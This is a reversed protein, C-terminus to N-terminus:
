AVLARNRAHFNCLPGNVSKRVGIEFWQSLYALLEFDNEGHLEGAIWQVRSLMESKIATLILFEAGETDIKILDPVGIGLENLMGDIARCVVPVRRCEAAAGRQYMSFGGLNRSDPSEIMEITEDRPGLAVNLGTINPYPAINKELVAFNAPIPEFCFIRASPYQNAFYISAAGINGGIDLIVRPAIPRPIWYEANKGRKLLISHIVHPDSTGPRYHVPHGNWSLVDEGRAGAVRHAHRAFRWSGSRFLLKLESKKM